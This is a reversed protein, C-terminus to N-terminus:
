QEKSPFPPINTGCLKLAQFVANGPKFCLTEIYSVGHELGLFLALCLTEIKIQLHFQCRKSWQYMM